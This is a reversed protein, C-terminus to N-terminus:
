LHLSPDISDARDNVQSMQLQEIRHMIQKLSGVLEEMQSPHQKASVQAHNEMAQTHVSRPRAAESQPFAIPLPSESLAPHASSQSVEPASELFFNLGSAHLKAESFRLSEVMGEQLQLQQKLAAVQTASQAFRRSTDQWSLLAFSTLGVGVSLATVSAFYPTALDQIRGTFVPRDDLQVTLPRSGTMLFAITAGAFVFGSLFVSFVLSRSTTM